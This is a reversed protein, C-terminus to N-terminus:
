KNLDLLKVMLVDELYSLGIPKTIYDDAGLEFCKKGVDDDKVATIMVIIMKKYFKRMEKLVKIGDMDPMRIDLLVVDPKDKKVKALAERGSLATTAGYGKKTLFKHM